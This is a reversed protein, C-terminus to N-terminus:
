RSLADRYRDLSRVMTEGFGDSTEDWLDFWENDAPNQIRRVCNAISERLESTPIVAIETALRAIEPDGGQDILHTLLAAIGIAAQAEYVEVYEEGLVGDCIERIHAEAATQDANRLGALADHSGDNDFPGEGWAGM